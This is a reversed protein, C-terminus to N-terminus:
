SGAGAVLSFVFLLERAVQACREDYAANEGPTGDSAKPDDYPLAIRLTAGPVVPCAREAESCTLVACFDERPNPLESLAPQCRRCERVRDRIRGARSGRGSTPQIRDVRHRWFLHRRRQGWLKGGCRRGLDTGPPQPPLQAHLNFLLRAAHQGAQRQEVHRALKRLTAQRDDPIQDFEAERQRVYRELRESATPATAREADGAQILDTPPAAASRQTVVIALLVALSVLFRAM